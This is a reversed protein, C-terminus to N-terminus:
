MQQEFGLSKVMGVQLRAIVRRLSREHPTTTWLFEAGIQYYDSSGESRRCRMIRVDDMFEDDEFRVRLVGTTGQDIRGVSELLCGSTSIEVLRVPIERGLVAVLDSAGLIADLADM